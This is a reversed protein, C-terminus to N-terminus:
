VSKLGKYKEVVSRQEETAEKMVQRIIKTKEKSDAHLFFDSFDDKKVPTSTANGTIKKIFEIM